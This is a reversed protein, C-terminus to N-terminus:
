HGHAFSNAYGDLTIGVIKGAAEILFRRFGHAVAARSFLFGQLHDREVRRPDDSHIVFNARDVDALVRVEDDPVTIRKGTGRHRVFNQNIAVDIEVPGQWSVSHRVVRLSLSVTRRQWNETRLLTTPRPCGQGRPRPRPASEPQRPM